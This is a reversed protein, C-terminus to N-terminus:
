KFFIEFLVSEIEINKQVKADLFIVNRSVNSYPTTMAQLFCTIHNVLANMLNPKASVGSIDGSSLRRHLKSELSM